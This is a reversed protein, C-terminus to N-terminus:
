AKPNGPPPQVFRSADVPANPQIGSLKITMQM